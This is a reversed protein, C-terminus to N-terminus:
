SRGSQSCTKASDPLTHSYYYGRSLNYRVLRGCKPCTRKEVDSVRVVPLGTERSVEKDSKPREYDDYDSARREHSQSGDDPLVVLRNSHGFFRRVRWRRNGV